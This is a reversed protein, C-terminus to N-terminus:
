KLIWNVPSQLCITLYYLTNVLDYHEKLVISDRKKSRLFLWLSCSKQFYTRQFWYHNSLDLCTYFQVEFFFGRGEKTSARKCMTAPLTWHMFLLKNWKSLYKMITQSTEQRVKWELSSRMPDSVRFANWREKLGILPFSSIYCKVYNYLTNILLLLWLQVKYRHAPYRYKFSGSDTWCLFFLLIILM